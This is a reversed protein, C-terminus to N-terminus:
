IRIKSKLKEFTKEGIGKVNMLEEPKKFKGHEERFAVIREAIKPGIRPLTVLQDVGATNINVTDGQSEGPAAKQAQKNKESPSAKKTKAEEAVATLSLLLVSLMLLRHWWPVQSRLPTVHIENRKM